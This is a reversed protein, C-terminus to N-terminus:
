RRHVRGDGDLVFARPLKQAVADRDAEAVVWGRSALGEAIRVQTRVAEEAILAKALAGVHDAADQALLTTVASFRTPEHFDELFRVIAPAIRPDSVAELADLLQIKPDPNRDYETDWKGLLALIEEVYRADDLLERLIRIPWQVSEAKSAFERIPGLAAEGAAIIGRFATEREEQDTIGPEIVFTFRKLLVSAADANGVKALADLAEQRDYNQARKSVAEAWKAVNKDAPKPRESAGAAAKPKSKLFDFVGMPARRDLVTAALRSRKAAAAV